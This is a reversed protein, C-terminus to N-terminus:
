RRSRIGPNGFETFFGAAAVFYLRSTRRQGMLSPPTFGGVSRYERREWKGVDTVCLPKM